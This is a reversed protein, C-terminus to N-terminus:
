LSCVQRGGEARELHMYFSKPYEERLWSAFDAGKGKYYLGGEHFEKYVARLLQDFEMTMREWSAFEKLEEALQTAVHEAQKRSMHALWINRLHQQCDLLHVRLKEEREEDGLANWADEGYEARFVGEGQRRIM